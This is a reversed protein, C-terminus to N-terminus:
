VAHLWLRMHTQPALHQKFSHESRAISIHSVLRSSEQGATRVAKSQLNLKLNGDAMMRMIAVTSIEKLAAQKLTKM